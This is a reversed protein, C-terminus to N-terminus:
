HLDSPTEADSGFICPLKKIPKITNMKLAGRGRLECVGGRNLIPIAIRLKPRPLYKKSGAMVRGRAGEGKGGDGSGKQM